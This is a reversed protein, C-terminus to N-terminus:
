LPIRYTQFDVAARAQAEEEGLRNIKQEVGKTCMVTAQPKGNLARWPFFIDCKTFRLLRHTGEYLVVLKNRVHRHM